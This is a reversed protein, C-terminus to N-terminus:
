RAAMAMDFFSTTLQEPKRKRQLSISKKNMVEYLALAKGYFLQQDPSLAKFNSRLHDLLYSLMVAIEVIDGEYVVTFPIKNFYLELMDCITFRGRGCEGDYPQHIPGASNKEFFYSHMVGYDAPVDDLPYTRKEVHDIISLFM